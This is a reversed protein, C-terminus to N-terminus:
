ERLREREHKYCNEEWDSSWHLVWCAVIAPEEHVVGVEVVANNEAGEQRVGEPDWERAEELCPEAVVNTADKEVEDRAEQPAEVNVKPLAVNIEGFTSIM